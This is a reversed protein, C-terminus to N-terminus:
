SPNGISNLSKNFRDLLATVVVHFPSSVEISVSMLWLILFSIYKGQVEEYKSLFCNSHEPDARHLQHSFKGSVM